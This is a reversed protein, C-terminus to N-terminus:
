DKCNFAQLMMKIIREKKINYAELEQSQYSINKVLLATFGIANILDILLGSFEEIEKPSKHKITKTLINKLFSIEYKKYPAYIKEFTDNLELLNENSLSTLRRINSYVQTRNWLYKLIKEENDPFGELDSQLKDLGITLQNNVVQLFLEEKNKFYYYLAAKNFGIADGIEDLTTKNFGFKIFCETSKELIEKRRSDNTSPRGPKRKVIKTDTITEM